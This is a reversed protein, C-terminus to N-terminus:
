VILNFYGFDWIASEFSNDLYEMIDEDCYGMIRFLTATIQLIDEEKLEGKMDWVLYFWQRLVALEMALWEAKKVMLSFTSDPTLLSSYIEECLLIRIRNELPYWIESLFIDLKAADFEIEEAHRAIVEIIDKYKGEELYKDLVDLLLENGELFRDEDPEEDPMDQLTEELEYPVESCMFDNFNEENLEGAEDMENLILLLYFIEKLANAPSLTEDKVMGLLWDRIEFHLSPTDSAYKDSEEDSDLYKHVTFCDEEWLLELVRKCGLSLFLEIRDSYEQRERPFSHCTDSITDEGYKLVIRCLGKENLFPCLGAEDMKIADYGFNRYVYASLKEEKMGEPCSLKQWKGQTIDDVAINWEKCCTFDCKDAICYFDDYYSPKYVTM